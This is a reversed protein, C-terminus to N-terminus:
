NCSSMESFARFVRETDAPNMPDSSSMLDLCSDVSTLCLDALDRLLLGDEMWVWKAQDAFDPQGALVGINQVHWGAGRCVQLVSRGALHAVEDFPATKPRTALIAVGAAVALAGLATRWRTRRVLMGALGLATIGIAIIETM